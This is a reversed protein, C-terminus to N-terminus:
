GCRPPPGTRPRPSRSSAPGTRARRRGRRAPEPHHRAAREDPGPDVPVRLVGVQHLALRCARLQACVQACAGAQRHVQGPGLACNMLMIGRTPQPNGPEGQGKDRVAPRTDGAHGAVLRRTSLVLSHAILAPPENEANGTVGGARVAAGGGLHRGQGSRGDRGGCLRCGHASGRGKSRGELVLLRGETRGTTRHGVEGLRLGTVSCPLARTIEIHLWFPPTPLVVVM